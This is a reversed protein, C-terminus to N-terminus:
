GDKMNPQKPFALFGRLRLRCLNYLMEVRQSFSSAGSSCTVEPPTSGSVKESGLGDMTTILSNSYEV